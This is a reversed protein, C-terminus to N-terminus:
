RESDGVRPCMQTRIDIAEVKTKISEQKAAIKIYNAKLDEATKELGVNKQASTVTLEHINDALKDIKETLKSQGEFNKQLVFYLLIFGISQAGFSALIQEM